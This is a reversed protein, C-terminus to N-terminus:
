VSTNLSETCRHSAPRLRGLGVIENDFFRALVVTVNIGPTFRAPVNAGTEEITAAIEHGPIRPYSVLPNKGRFTSLDTGCMGVRRTRLLVEDPGPAAPRPVDALRTKGPAEIVFARM